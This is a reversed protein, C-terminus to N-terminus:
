DPIAAKRPPWKQKVKTRLVDNDAFFRWKEIQLRLMAHYSFTQRQRILRDLAQYLNHIKRFLASYFYYVQFVAWM